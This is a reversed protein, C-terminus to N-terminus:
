KLEAIPQLYWVGAKCHHCSHCCADADASGDPGNGEHQSHQGAWSWATVAPSERRHRVCPTLIQPNPKSLQSASAAAIIQDNPLAVLWWSRNSHLVTPYQSTRVTPSTNSGAAHPSSRSLYCSICAKSTQMYHTISEQECTHTNAITVLTYPPLVVRVHVGSCRQHEQLLLTYQAVQGYM